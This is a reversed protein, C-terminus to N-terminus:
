RQFEPVYNDRQSFLIPNISSNEYLHLIDNNISNIDKDKDNIFVYFNTNDSGLTERTQVVDTVISQAYIQNNPSTMVKILRQPIDNGFGPISYEFKHTLGSNGIYSADKIARIKNKIFFDNVDELFLSSTTKKSLMFMDNVFLIAQLLRHKSEGYKKLDTVIYLEGDDESVGYIKLQRKFLDRRQKSRNLFIGHSKLGDLTWGDDTLTIEDNNNAIAYIVVGDSSNDIFPTDIRIIGNELQSYQFKEKVWDLHRKKLIKATIM